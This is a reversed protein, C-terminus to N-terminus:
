RTKRQKHFDLKGLIQVFGTKKGKNKQLSAFVGVKRGGVFVEGGYSPKEKFKKVVSIGPEISWGKVTKKAVFRIGYLPKESKKASLYLTVESWKSPYIDNNIVLQEPKKEVAIKAREGVQLATGYGIKYNKDPPFPSYQFGASLKLKGSNSKVLESAIRFTMFNEEPIKKPSLGLKFEIVGRKGKQDTSGIDLVFRKQKIDKGEFDLEFGAKTPRINQSVTHSAGSIQAFLKKPVVLSGIGVVFVTGLAAAIKPHKVCFNILHALTKFKM